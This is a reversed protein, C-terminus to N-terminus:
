TKRYMAQLMYCLKTINLMVTPWLPQNVVDQFTSIKDKYTIESWYLLMENWFM